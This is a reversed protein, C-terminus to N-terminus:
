FAPNKRGYPGGPTAVPGSEDHPPPRIATCRRGWQLGPLGKRRSRCGFVAVVDGGSRELVSIKNTTSKRKLINVYPHLPPPREGSHPNEPLAHRISSSSRVSINMQQTHSPINPYPFEHRSQLDTVVHLFIRSIIEERRPIYQQTANKKNGM